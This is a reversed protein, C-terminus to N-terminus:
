VKITPKQEFLMQEVTLKALKFEALCRSCIIGGEAAVQRQFITALDVDLKWGCLTVYRLTGEAMEIPGIHWLPSTLLRKLYAFGQPRGPM